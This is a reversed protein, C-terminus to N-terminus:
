EKDRPCTKRGDKSLQERKERHEINRTASFLLIKV